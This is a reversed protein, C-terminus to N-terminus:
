EEADVLHFYINRLGWWCIASVLFVALGFLTPTFSSLYGIFVMQPSIDPAIMIENLAMWLGSLQTIMGLLASIGGWFLIANLYQPKAKKRILLDYTKIGILILVILTILILIWKWPGMFMFFKQFGSLNEM